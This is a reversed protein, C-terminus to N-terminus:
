GYYHEIRNLLDKDEIHEELKQIHAKLRKVEDEHKSFLQKLDAIIADQDPHCM